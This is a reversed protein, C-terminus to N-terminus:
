LQQDLSLLGFSGYVNCLDDEKQITYKLKLNERTVKTAPRLTCWLGRVLWSNNYSHAHFEFSSGM